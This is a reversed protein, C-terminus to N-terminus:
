WDMRFTFYGANMCATNFAIEKEKPWEVYGLADTLDFVSYREVYFDDYWSIEGYKEEFDPLHIIWSEHHALHKPCLTWIELRDDYSQTQDMVFDRILNQRTEVDDVFLLKIKEKSNMESEM